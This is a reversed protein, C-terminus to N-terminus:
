SEEPPVPVPKPDAEEEPLAVNQAAQARGWGVRSKVRGVLGALDFGRNRDIQFYQDGDDKVLLRVRQGALVAEDPEGESDIMFGIRACGPTASQAM